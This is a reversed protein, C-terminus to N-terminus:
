VQYLDRQQDDNMLRRTVIVIMCMEIIVFQSFRLVINIVPLANLMWGSLGIRLFTM